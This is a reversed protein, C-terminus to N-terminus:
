KNDSEAEYRALAREAHPLDPHPLNTMGAIPFEGELYGMRKWLKVAEDWNLGGSGDEDAYGPEVTIKYMVEKMRESEFQQSQQFLNENLKMEEIAERQGRWSFKGTDKIRNVYDTGFVVALGLAVAGTTHIIGRDIGKM